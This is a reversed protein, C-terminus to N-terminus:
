EPAGKIFAWREKADAPMRESPHGELDGFNVSEGCHICTTEVQTIQGCAKHTFEVPPKGNFAWKNGWAILTLLIPGLEYGKGTLRYEYRNGGEGYPERKLIDEALLTDLRDSLVKKSIGLSNQLGSFRHNGIFVDRLILLTWWEGVIDLTQAISCHMGSFDTRKM